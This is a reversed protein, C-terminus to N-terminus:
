KKLGRLVWCAVEPSFNLSKLYHIARMFGNRLKAVMQRALEYIESVKM